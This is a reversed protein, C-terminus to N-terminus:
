DAVPPFLPKPPPEKAKPNERLRDKLADYVAQLKDEGVLMKLTQLEEQRLVVETPDWFRMSHYAFYICENLSDLTCWRQSTKSEHHRLIQWWGDHAVIGGVDVFKGNEQVTVSFCMGYENMYPHLQVLSDIPM